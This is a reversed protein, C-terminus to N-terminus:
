QYNLGSKDFAKKLKELVKASNKICHNTIIGYKKM